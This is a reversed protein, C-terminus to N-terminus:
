RSRTGPSVNLVKRFEAIAAPNGAKLFELGQQRYEAAPDVPAAPAAPAPAPPSANVEPAPEHEAPPRPAAEPRAAEETVVGRFGTGEM